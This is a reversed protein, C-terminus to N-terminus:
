RNCNEFSKFEVHNNRWNRAIGMCEKRDFATGLINGIFNCLKWMETWNIRYHLVFVSKDRKPFSVLLEYTFVSVVCLSGVLM